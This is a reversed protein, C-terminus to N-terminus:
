KANLDKRVHFTIGFESVITNFKDKNSGWYVMACSMPAGKQYPIGNQLFKLRAVKLFCISTAYLFINKQWHKTNTAVPILAIVESGHDRHADTCKQLWDRITTGREYDRGYPPNVYITQYDWSEALGNQPLCYAVESAVVSYQNSCPDLGIKGGFVDKVAKIYEPPTGWDLSQSKVTRGASM